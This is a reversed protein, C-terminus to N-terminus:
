LTYFWTYTYKVATEKWKCIYKWHSTYLTERWRSSSFLVCRCYQKAMQSRKKKM